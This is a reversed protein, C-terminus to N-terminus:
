GFAAGPTTTTDQQIIHRIWSLYSTIRSYVAPFEPTDCDGVAWSSVGVTVWQDGKKCFVHGGSDGNCTESGVVGVCIHFPLVRAGPHPYKSWMASCNTNPIIDLRLERLLVNSERTGKTEGWGLILCEDSSTFVNNVTPLCAPQIYRTFQVPQSLKLLAIDNRFGPGDSGYHEHKIIRSVRAIVERGSSPDQNHDGFVVQYDDADDHISDLCHAATVVWNPTIISGGCIYTSSITQLSGVSSWHNPSAENGGVVRNRRLGPLAACETSVISAWMMAEGCRYQGADKSGRM